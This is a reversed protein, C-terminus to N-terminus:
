QDAEGMAVAARRRWEGWHRLVHAMEAITSCGLVLSDLPRPRARVARARTSGIRRLLMGLSLPEHHLTAYLVAAYHTRALAGGFPNRRPAHDVVADVAFQERLPVARARHQLDLDEFHAFPFREDFGGLTEFATRAVLVNCSWIYRGQENIPAHDLPSTWPARCIVRGPVIEANTAIAPLFGALWGPDPVCDDDVFAIWPATTHRAGANRNSAPGRRPGAQWRVWPYRSRVMSATTSTPSDDTVVVEYAAADLTQAGPALRDLCRALAAPREYTPIVVRIRPATM